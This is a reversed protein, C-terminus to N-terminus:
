MDNIKDLDWGDEFYIFKVIIVVNDNFMRFFKEKVLKLEFFWERDKFEM